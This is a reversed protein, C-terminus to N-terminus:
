DEELDKSAYDMFKLDGNKTTTWNPAVSWFHHAGAGVKRVVVRIKKNEMIAIFGWFNVSKGVNTYKKKMKVRFQQIKEDKEQITTTTKIVLRAIDIVKLRMFQDKKDRERGKKYVIHNLGEATFKVTANIAPCKLDKYGGYAQEALSRVELYNKDSYPLKSIM